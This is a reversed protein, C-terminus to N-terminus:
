EDDFIIRAASGELDEYQKSKLCWFVGLLALVCILLTIPIILILIDM